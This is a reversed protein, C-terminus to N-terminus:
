QADFSVHLSRLRTIDYHPYELAFALDPQRIHFVLSSKILETQNCTGDLAVDENESNLSSYYQAGM